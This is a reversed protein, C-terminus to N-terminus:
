RVVQSIGAKELVERFGSFGDACVMTDVIGWWFRLQLGVGMGECLGTPSGVGSEWERTSNTPSGVGLEREWYLGTPSGVDLGWERASDLLAVWVWSGNGRLTRLTVRM